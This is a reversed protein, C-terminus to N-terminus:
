IRFKRESITTITEWMDSIEKTKEANPGPQNLRTALGLYGLFCGLPIIFALVAM